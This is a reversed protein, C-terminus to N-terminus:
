SSNDGRYKSVTENKTEGIYKLIEEKTAVIKDCSRNYLHYMNRRKLRGSIAPISVGLAEAVRKCGFRNMTEILHHSEPWSIKCGSDKKSDKRLDLDLKSFDISELKHPCIGFVHRGNNCNYCLVQLDSRIPKRKLEYFFSLSSGSQSGYKQIREINGDNNIHDITLFEWKVEDCCVCRGGYKELVEKRLRKNRLKIREQNNKSYRSTAESKKKLCIQCGKKGKLYNSSGCYICLGNEFRKQRLIKRADNKNM